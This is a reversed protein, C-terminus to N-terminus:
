RRASPVSIGVRGVKWGAKRSRVGALLRWLQHSRSAISLFSVSNPTRQRLPGESREPHCYQQVRLKSGLFPTMGLAALSRQAVSRRKDCSRRSSSSRTARPITTSRPSFSTAAGSTSRAPGPLLAHRAVGFSMWPRPCLRRRRGDDQTAHGQGRLGEDVWLISVFLWDAWVYGLLGGLVENQAGRLFINVPYYDSRGTVGANYFSLRDRVYDAAAANHPEFVMKAKLM